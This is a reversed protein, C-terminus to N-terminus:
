LLGNAEMRSDLYQCWLLTVIALMEYKLGVPEGDPGYDVLWHIGLAHVEEAILGVQTEAADGLNEVAAIYRFSVVRLQRLTAIELEYTAVDTKFRLSSPVYGMTGDQHVYQSSFSGGYTLLTTYVGVSNMGTVATV